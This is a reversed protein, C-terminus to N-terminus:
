HTRVAIGPYDVVLGAADYLLRCRFDFRPAEYDFRLTGDDDALREYHQELREVGLGVARVYAAPASSAGGPAPDLRHVPITNTLASSELDVDLCGDLEPRGVGDVSWHGEGDTQVHVRGEDGFTWATVEADRTLWGRDLDIAYRVVWAEGSEVATTHGDLRYGSDDAHLFAVEFGDRLGDHRWAASTPLPEFTM